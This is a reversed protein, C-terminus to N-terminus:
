RIEGAELKPTAGNENQFCMVRATTATKPLARHMQRREDGDCLPPKRPNWRAACGVLLEVRRDRRRKAGARGRTLVANACVRRNWAAAAADADCFGEHFRGDFLCTGCDCLVFTEMKTGYWPDNQPEVDRREINPAGGCFPCPALGASLGVNRGELKQEEPM